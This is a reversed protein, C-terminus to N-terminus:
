SSRRRVSKWCPAHGCCSRSAVRSAPAPCRWRRRPLMVLRGPSRAVARPSSESAPMHQKCSWKCRATLLCQRLKLVRDTVRGLKVRGHGCKSCVEWRDKVACRLALRPAAGPGEPMIRTRWSSSFSLPGVLWEQLVAHRGSQDGQAFGSPTDSTEDDSVNQPSADQLNWPQGGPTRLFGQM